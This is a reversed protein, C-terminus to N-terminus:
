ASAPPTPRSRLGIGVPVREAERHRTEDPHKMEEALNMHEAM